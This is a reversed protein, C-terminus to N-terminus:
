PINKIRINYSNKFNSIMELFSNFIFEITNKNFIDTKYESHVKIINNFITVNCVIDFYPTADYYLHMPAPLPANIIQEEDRKINLFFTGVKHLPIGAEWLAREHPYVRHTILELFKINITRVFEILSCSERLKYRLLLTNIFFGISNNLKNDRLTTNIGITVDAEGTLKYLLIHFCAVIVVSLSTQSKLSLEKLVYFKNQDLCFVYAHGKSYNVFSVKNVFALELEESIMSFSEKIEAKISDIYDDPKAIKSYSLVTSLTTEPLAKLISNWYLRHRDGKKSNILNEVETIYDKYQYSTSLEHNGGSLISTYIQCIENKIIESSRIDVIMHPMTIILITQKKKMKILKIILWPCKDPKFIINKSNNFIKYYEMLRNKKNRLDILDIKIMSPKYAWIRQKLENDVTILTTRLIEHRQILYAITTTLTKVDLEEILLSFASNINKLSHSARVYFMRQSQSVDYYITQDTRM